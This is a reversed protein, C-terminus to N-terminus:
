ANTPSGIFTLEGSLGWAFRGSSSIHVRVLAGAYEEVGSVSAFWGATMGPKPTGLAGGVWGVTMFEQWTQAADESIEVRMTVSRSSNAFDTATVNLRVNVTDIDAPITVNPSNYESGNKTTKSIWTTYAM